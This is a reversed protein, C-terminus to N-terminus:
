LMQVMRPTVRCKEAQALEGRGWAKIDNEKPLDAQGVYFEQDRRNQRQLGTLTFLNSKKRNCKACLACRNHLQDTDPDNLERPTLHDLQFDGTDIKGSPYQPAPKGCGACQYGWRAFYMELMEDYSFTTKPRTTPRYPTDFGPATEGADTRQPPTTELRMAWRNAALAKQFEAQDYVGDDDNGDVKRVPVAANKSDTDLLRNLVHVKAMAARDIGIWRRRQGQGMNECAVLTTACGAFPDLVVDGPNSSAAIIRQMLEIPKQTPWGTHERGRAGSVDLWVDQIKVGENPDLYKKYQFPSSSAAQVLMDNQYLEEMREPAFRWARTIGRFEYTKNGGTENTCPLTRYQGRADFKNYASKIYEDSYPQYQINYRASKSKAYWFITDHARGMQQRALNHRDQRRLWVIENRFNDKGFIADMAMRIYANASHDCHLYISATPKLIRHCELLRVALFCLFAAIGDDHTLRAAEITAVLGNYRAADRRAAAGKQAEAIKGLAEIEELWENQVARLVCDPPCGSTHTHANAWYWQDPYKGARGSMNRRKNFPPDTAILDVSESNIGQLIALNDGEFFTRDPVNLEAM